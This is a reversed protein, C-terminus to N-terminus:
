IVKAEERLLKVVEAVAEVGKGVIRGPPRAPPLQLELVEVKDELYQAELEKFPKSKAQMIGKLTPYRPEYKCKTYSLICPSSVEFIETVGEGEKQIIFKNDKFETLFVHSLIPIDLISSLLFPVQGFDNDVAQKGTFIVDFKNERLYLALNYAIICPDITSKSDKILVANDAGMALANRLTTACEAPGFSCVSVSEFVRDDKLRLAGELAYEDYPNIVFNLGSLDINKKDQAIKIIAATDPVRKILVVAKM